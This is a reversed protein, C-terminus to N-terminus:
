HFFKPRFVVTVVRPSKFLTQDHKNKFGELSLSYFREAIQPLNIAKIELTKGTQDLRWSDVKIESNDQKAFLRIVDNKTLFIEQSFKVAILNTAVVEHSSIRPLNVIDHCCIECSLDNYLSAIHLTAVNESIEFGSQAKLQFEKPFIVTQQMSTRKAGSQHIYKFRWKKQQKLPLKTILDLILKEQPKLAMKFAFVTFNKEQFWNSEQIKPFSETSLCECDSNFYIRVYANYTGSLPFDWDGFHEWIIRLNTIQSESTIHTERFISKSIYRNSKLGLFNSENISLFDESQECNFNKVPPKDFDNIQLDKNAFSRKILRLIQPLRWFNLSIKLLLQRLLKKLIMKRGRLDAISHRDIDSVEASLFYFVHEARLKKGNLNIEGLVAILNEIFSFNIAILGCLNKDPYIKNYFFRLKEASDCFDPDFNADRFQWGNLYGDNLMEMLPKPGAIKEPCNLDTFVDLFKYRFSSFEVASTVFGGSARLESNNQLIVLLSKRLFLCKFLLKLVEIM